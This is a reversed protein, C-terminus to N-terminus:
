EIEKLFQKIEALSREAQKRKREAKDRIAIDNLPLIGFNANM